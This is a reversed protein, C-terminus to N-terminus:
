VNLSAATGRWMAYVYRWYQSFMITGPSYILRYLTYPKALRIVGQTLAREIVYCHSYLSIHQKRGNKEGRLGTIQGAVMRM